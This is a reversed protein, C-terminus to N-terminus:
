RTAESDDNRVGQGGSATRDGYPPLTAKPLGCSCPGPALCGANAGPPLGSGPWPRAAARGGFKLSEGDQEHEGQVTMRGSEIACAFWTLMLDRDADPVVTLFGDVWKEADREGILHNLNNDDM